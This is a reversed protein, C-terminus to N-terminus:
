LARVYIFTLDDNPVAGNRFVEVDNLLNSKIQESRRNKEIFSVLREEGFEESTDSVAETLGDSYLCLIDNTHFPFTEVKLLRDFLPGRDLGLAIGSTKLWRSKGGSLLLPPNHGARAVTITKESRDLVAIAMSIFFRGQNNDKFLRNVQSLIKHLDFSHEFAMRLYGKTMTMLLGASIGKGAVDAVVFCVRNGAITFIDYYDGGVSEAPLCAGEIHYDLIHPLKQPNLAEQVKGAASMRDEMTGLQQSEDLVLTFVGNIGFFLFCLGIVFLAISVSTWPFFILSVFGQFFLMYSWSFVRSVWHYKKKLLLAENKLLFFRIGMWACSYWANRFEGRRRFGELLGQGVIPDYDLGSPKLGTLSAMKKLFAQMEADDRFYFMSYFRLSYFIGGRTEFFMVGNAPIYGWRIISSLPIHFTELLSVVRLSGNKVRFTARGMLSVMLFLTISIMVRLSDSALEDQIFPADIKEVFFVLYLGLLKLLWDVFRVLFLPKQVFVSDM